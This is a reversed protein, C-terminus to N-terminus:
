KIVQGWPQSTAPASALYSVGSHNAGVRGWGAAAKGSGLRLGGGLRSACCSGPGAQDRGHRRRSASGVEEGEAAVVWGPVQRVRKWRRADGGRRVRREGTRGCAPGGPCEPLPGQLAPAARPPPAPRAAAGGAQGRGQGGARGGPRVTLGTGLVIVDYEENM